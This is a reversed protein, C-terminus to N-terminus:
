SADTAGCCRLALIEQEPSVFSLPSFFQSMYLFSLRACIALYLKCVEFLMDGPSCTLEHEYTFARVM